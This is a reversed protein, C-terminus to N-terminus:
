DDPIDSLLNIHAIFRWQEHINLGCEEICVKQKHKFENYDKETGFPNGILEQGDLFEEALAELDLPPNALLEARTHGVFAWADLENKHDGYAERGVVVPDHPQGDFATALVAWIAAKGCYSCTFDLKDNFKNHPQKM